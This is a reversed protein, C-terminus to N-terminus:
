RYVVNFRRDIKDWEERSLGKWPQDPKVGIERFYDEFGAPTFIMVFTLLEDGTNTLGHWVGQPIVATFGASVDYQNDGLTFRGRGSAIYVFEEEAGHKHVPIGDGPVIEETLVSIADSGHTRKDIKITVRGRREGILYVDGDEPASLLSSLNTENNM